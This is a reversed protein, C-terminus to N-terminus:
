PNNRLLGSIKSYLTLHRINVYDPSIRCYWRFNAIRELRFDSNRMTTVCGTLGVALSLIAAEYNKHFQASVSHNYRVSLTIQREHVWENWLVFDFFRDLMRLWFGSYSRNSFGNLMQVMGWRNEGGGGLVRWWYVDSSLEDCRCVHFFPWGHRVYSSCYIPCELQIICMVIAHVIPLKYLILCFSWNSISSCGNWISVYYIIASLCILLFFIVAFAFVM